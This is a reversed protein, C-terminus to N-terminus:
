FYSYYSTAYNFADNVEHWACWVFCFIVAFVVGVIGLVMGATAMGRKSQEGRGIAGLVIAAVTLFIPVFCFFESILGMWFSGILGVIGLILAAIAM